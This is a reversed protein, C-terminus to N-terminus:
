VFRNFISMEVMKLDVEDFYGIDDEGNWLMIKTMEENKESDFEDLKDTEGFYVARFRYTKKKTDYIRFLGCFKLEEVKQHTEEYLERIAAARATEGEEIKGAPFEWQQRWKNYGILIKNGVRVIAYSGTLPTYQNENISDEPIDYYNILEIGARSKALVM